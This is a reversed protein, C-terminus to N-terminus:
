KTEKFITNWTDTPIDYTTEIEFEFRLVGNNRKFLDTFEMEAKDHENYLKRFLMSIGSTTIYRLRYYKM